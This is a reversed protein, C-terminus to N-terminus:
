RASRATDAAALTEALTLLAPPPVAKFDRTLRLLMGLSEPSLRRIDREACDAWTRMIQTYTADAIGAAALEWAVAIRDAASLDPDARLLPRMREITASHASRDRATRQIQALTVHASLHRPDEGLVQLILKQAGPRNGM